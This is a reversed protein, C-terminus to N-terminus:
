QVLDLVMMAVVVNHTNDGISLQRIEIMKKDINLIYKDWTNDIIKSDKIRSFLKDLSKIFKYIDQQIECDELDMISTEFGSVPIKVIIERGNINYIIKDKNAKKIVYNNNNLDFHVFGIKIYADVLSCILQNVCSIIKDIDGSKWEYLGFSGDEVYEMVLVKMDNGDKRCISKTNKDFNPKYETRGYNDIKDTLDERIRQIFDKCVFYCYYCYYNLIGNVNNDYLLKYNIFEKEINESFNSVKVVVKEKDNIIGELIQKNTRDPSILPGTNKLTKIYSINKLWEETTPTKETIKSQCDIIFKPLSGSIDDPKGKVLETVSM